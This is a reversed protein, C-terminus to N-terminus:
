GELTHDTELLPPAAHELRAPVHTRTAIADHAQRHAGDAALRDIM